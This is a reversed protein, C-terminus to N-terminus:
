QLNELLSSKLVMEKQDLCHHLLHLPLNCNMEMLLWKKMKWQLHHCTISSALLQIKISKSLMLLSVLRIAMKSSQDGHDQHKLQNFNLMRYFCSTIEGVPANKELSQCQNAGGVDGPSDQGEIGRYKAEQPMISISIISLLIM